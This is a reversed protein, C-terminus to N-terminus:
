QEKWSNAIIVGGIVAALHEETPEEDIYLYAWRANSSYAPHANVGKLWYSTTWRRKDEDTPRQLGKVEIVVHLDRGDEMPAVAVFDPEYHRPMGDYRYPITWGLRENRIWRRIHPHLDLMEAVAVEWDSDCVAVNVESKLTEHKYIRNSQYPTLRRSDLWEPDGALVDIADFDEDDVSLEIGQWVWNAAERPEAMHRNPWRNDDGPGLLNGQRRAERVIALAQQFLNIRAVAANGDDLETLIDVVSKAVLYEFEQRTAPTEYLPNQEGAPAGPATSIRTASSNDPAEYIPLTSWDSPPRLSLSKRIPNRRYDNVHPWLIRKDEREDLLHVDFHPPPPLLPKIAAARRRGLNQFPIGLIDAYEPYLYGNEDADYAVRRLARGSVQECLLQTGFRRFGVIHTVTRADWGETLMGVSVVCRVREGPQGAKGISNLVTRMIDGNSAQLFSVGETTEVNPYLRRYTAAQRRLYRGAEGGVSADPEDIKSHVLITRPYEYFENANVDINSLENGLRGPYLEDNAEWGAIYDFARNANTINNVIVALVPPVNRQEWNENRRVGQWNAYMMQLAVKLDKNSSDDDERTLGKNDKTNAYIGRALDDDWENPRNGDDPLRMIKVIGAEEAEQLGYQSVIWPFLPANRDEIFSPTASLDRVPGHILGRRHLMRLANFWVFKSDDSKKGPKRGPAGQHCHHAEDNFVVMSSAKQGLVRNLIQGESEVNNAKRALEKARNPMQGDPDRPLFKHFNVVNLRIHRLAAEYKPPTLNLRPNLYETNQDPQGHKMYQLGSELREQVTIGPTIALFRNTFRKDGPYERHNCTQWLIIAAMVATKGTGTAMQHCIRFIGDNIVTNIEDLERLISKGESTQPAVEHLWIATIIAEQQAFYLGNEESDTWYGLLERTVRTAGRYAQSQWAAVEERIENVMELHHMLSTMDGMAVLPNRVDLNLGKVSPLRGTAAYRGPGHPADAVSGDNNRQWHWEPPSYPRNIIPSTNHSPTM